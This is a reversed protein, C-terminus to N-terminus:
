PFVDDWNDKRGWIFPYLLYTMNEWEFAQEFFQIMKGEVTAEDIDFDPYGYQGTTQMANFAESSRWVGGVRTAAFNNTLLRLTGKKLEDREIRRNFEPNRGEIQVGAQIQAAAVQENYDALAREYANMIAKYTNLQWAAKAEPKLECIAVVNVHFATCWGKVSISIIKEVDRATVSGWRQGAIFCELFYDTDKKGQWNLQGFVDFCKYGDPVILEKNTTAM